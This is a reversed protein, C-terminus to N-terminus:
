IVLRGAFSLFFGGGRADSAPSRDDEIAGGGRQWGFEASLSYVLRTWLFGGFLMTRSSVYSDDEITVSGTPAGIDAVIESSLRDWGLGATV